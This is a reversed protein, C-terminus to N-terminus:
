NFDFCQSIVSGFPMYCKVTDDKEKNKDNNNFIHSIHLM